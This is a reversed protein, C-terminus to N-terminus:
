APSWCRGIWATIIFGSPLLTALASLALAAPAMWRERLPAQRRLLSLARLGRWARASLWLGRLGLSSFLLGHGLLLPRPAALLAGGVLADLLPVLLALLLSLQFPLLAASLAQRPSLPAAM